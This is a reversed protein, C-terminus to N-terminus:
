VEGRFTEGNVFVLDEIWPDSLDDMSFSEGQSNFHPRSPLEFWASYLFATGELPTELAKTINATTVIPVMPEPKIWSLEESDGLCSCGGVAAM